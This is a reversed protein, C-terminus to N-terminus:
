DPLFDSYFLTMGCTVLDGLECPVREGKGLGVLILSAPGLRPRAVGARAPPWGLLFRWPARVVRPAPPPPADGPGLDLGRSQWAALTFPFASKSFFCRPPRHPPQHKRRPARPASSAPRARVGDVRRAGGGRIGAGRRPDGSVGWGGGAGAGPGRARGGRAGGAPLGGASHINM